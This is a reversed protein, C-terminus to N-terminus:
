KEPFCCKDAMDWQFFTRYLRDTSASLIRLSQDILRHLSVWWITEIIPHSARYELFYERLGPIIDARSYMKRKLQTTLPGHLDGILIFPIPRGLPSRTSDLAVRNEGIVSGFKSVLRRINRGVLSARCRNCIIDLPHTFRFPHMDIDDVCALSAKPNSLVWTLLGPGTTTTLAVPVTAPRTYYVDRLVKTTGLRWM